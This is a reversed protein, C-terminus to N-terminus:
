VNNCVVPQPGRASEKGQDDQSPHGVYHGASYEQPEDVLQHAPCPGSPVIAEKLSADEML